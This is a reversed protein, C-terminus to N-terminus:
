TLTQYHVKTLEGKCVLVYPFELLTVVGLPLFVYWSFVRELRGYRCCWQVGVCAEGLRGMRCTVLCRGGGM